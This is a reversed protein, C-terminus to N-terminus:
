APMEGLNKAAQELGGLISDVVFPSIDQPLDAQVEAIAAPTRALIDEIIPEATSGYGVTKATSNFHRRHIRQMEYHRNKGHLAMALKVEYPSWHSPGNGLVPYVSMVDYLPTMQFRGRSLLQISFNKAHGDPARLLWFLVQAAMLTRMDKEANVSQRLSGFLDKLGPGGENEYKRLPSCGTVQCFDEQPLRMLWQGNPAVRRDFREVVLVRQSGFREISTEAVPLGYARLLRLCLWENDVSTRFDAQRGGVLGLPLKLIHSTPTAGSPALWADDWRLFATKEQAGALSIRLDADPSRGARMAPSVIDMLHREIDQESMPVGEIQDFGTPTEDDDLIQVAGVCDRGIAKLLEFPETSGTKFREAARRRIADSDPLLNDFYHAVAAGKVPLNQLNFPLSLSLPRGVDAQFWGSDYQLEM